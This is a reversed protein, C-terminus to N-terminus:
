LVREVRMGLEGGHDVAHRRQEIFARHRRHVVLDVAVLQLRLVDRAVKQFGLADDFLRRPAWARAIVIVSPSAGSDISSRTATARSPAVTSSAGTMRSRSAVARATTSVSARDSTGM